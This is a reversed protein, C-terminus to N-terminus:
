QLQSRGRGSADILEQFLQLYRSAVAELAFEREVLARSADGARVLAEPALEPLSAIAEALAAADGPSVVWAEDAGLYTDIGGCRTILLPLGREMAELAANSMGEYRSSLLFVDSEELRRRVAASDLEGLFTLLGRPLNRASTELEQRLPGDGAIEVRLREAIGLPLRGLAEILVDYGKQFALRGVSLVRLPGDARAQRRLPAVPVGNPIRSIRVKDFGAEQLDAAMGPAILNIDALECDLLRVIRATGPVSRLYSVDGTPGANAPTSVIPQRFLGLARVCCLTVAADGLFRCYAVDAWRRLRLAHWALSLFYSLARGPRGLWSITRIRHVPVRVSGVSAECAGMRRGLCIVEHGARSWAEILRAAQMEAGGTVFQPLDSVVLIRM